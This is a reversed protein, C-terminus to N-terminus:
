TRSANQLIEACKQTIWLDKAKQKREQDKAHSEKMVSQALTKTACSDIETGGDLKGKWAITSKDPIMNIIDLIDVTNNVPFLGCKDLASQIRLILDIAPIKLSKENRIKNGLNKVRKTLKDVMTLPITPQSKMSEEELIDGDEVVRKVPSSTSPVITTDEIVEKMGRLKRSNEGIEQGGSSIPIDVSYEYCVQLKKSM